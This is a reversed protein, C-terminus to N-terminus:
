HEKKSFYEQLFNKIAKRDNDDIPQGNYAASKNIAEDISTELNNNKIDSKGTLYDISVNFYEALKELIEQKPNRKGQEYFGINAQNTNIAKALERQTLSAEIRLHKLREAFM